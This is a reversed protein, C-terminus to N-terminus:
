TTVDTREGATMLARMSPMVDLDMVAKFIESVNLTTSTDVRRGLNFTVIVTEEWTEVNSRRAPVLTRSKHIYQQYADM